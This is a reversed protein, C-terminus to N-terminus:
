SKSDVFYTYRTVFAKKLIYSIITLEGERMVPAPACGAKMESMEKEVEILRGEVKQEQEEMKEEVRKMREEMQKVSERMNKMKNKLEPFEKNIVEDCQQSLDTVHQQVLQLLNQDVIHGMCM